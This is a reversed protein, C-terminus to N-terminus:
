ELQARLKVPVRRGSSRTLNVIWAAAHAATCGWRHTRAHPQARTDRRQQHARIASECEQAARTLLSTFRGDVTASRNCHRGRDTECWLLLFFLPTHAQSQDRVHQPIHRSHTGPTVPHGPGTHVTCCTSTASCAPRVHRRSAMGVAPAALLGRVWGVLLLRQREM